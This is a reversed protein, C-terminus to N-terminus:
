LHDLKTLFFQLKRGHLMSYLILSICLTLSLTSAAFFASIIIELSFGFSIFQGCFLTTIVLSTFFASLLGIVFASYLVVCGTDLLKLEKQYLNENGFNKLDKNLSRATQLAASLRSSAIALIAGTGALLFAPTLAIQFTHAVGNIDFTM